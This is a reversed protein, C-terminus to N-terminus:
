DILECVVALSCVAASQCVVAVINGGAESAKDSISMATTLAFQCSLGATSLLLM